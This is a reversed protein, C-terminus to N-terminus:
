FWYGVSRVSRCMFYIYIYGNMESIIIFCFLHGFGIELFVLVYCVYLTVIAINLRRLRM